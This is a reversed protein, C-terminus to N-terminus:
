RTIRTYWHPEIQRFYDHDKLVNELREIMEDMQGPDFKIVWM